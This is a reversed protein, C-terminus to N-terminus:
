SNSASTCDSTDCRWARSSARKASSIPLPVGAILQGSHVAAHVLAEASQQLVESGFPHLGHDRALDLDAAGVRRQCIWETASFAEPSRSVVAEIALRQGANGLACVVTPLVRIGSPTLYFYKTVPGLRIISWFFGDRVSGPTM